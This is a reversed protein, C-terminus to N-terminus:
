AARLTADISEADTLGSIAAGPTIRGAPAADLWAGLDDRFRGADDTVLRPYVRDVIGANVWGAADQLARERALGPRRLAAVSLEGEIGAETRVRHVLRTIRDRLWARYAALADAKDLTDYGTERTFRALTASDGPYLRGGSVVERFRVQDLHVGDLDYRGALDTVVAVVRDHVADRAPNAWRYGPSAPEPKGDGDFLGWDPEEHVAHRPDIPPEYGRWLTLVNVWAHLRLGRAHAAGIARELPDFGPGAESVSLAEGWPEIPSDYYADFAGRVQWLVDTVGISAADDMIREIDGPERFDWRTVWLAVRPGGEVPASSVARPSADRAPSSACGTWGALVSLTAIWACV